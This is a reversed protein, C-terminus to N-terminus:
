KFKELFKQIVIQDPNKILAGDFIASTLNKDKNIIKMKIADNVTLVSYNGDANNIYYIQDNDLVSILLSSHTTFILQGYTEKKIRELFSVLFYALSFHLSNEIEDIFMTKGDFMAYILKCGIIIVKQTGSSLDEFNLKNGKSNVFVIDKEGDKKELKPEVLTSDALHCLEQLLEKHKNYFKILNIGLGGGCDSSINNLNDYFTKYYAINPNINNNITNNEYLIATGLESEFVNEVEFINVVKTSNYKKRYLLQEKKVGNKHYNSDYTISYTYYGAIYDKQNPVYIELSIFTDEDKHNVNTQPLNLNNIKNLIDDINNPNLENIKKLKELTKKLHSNSKRFPFNAFDVLAMISYIISTKGSGNCGIIGLTHLIKVDDEVEKYVNFGKKRKIKNNAICNLTVEGEIGVSNKVVARIIM